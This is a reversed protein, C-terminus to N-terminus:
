PGITLTRSHLTAKGGKLTVEGSGAWTNDDLQIRLEEDCIIESNCRIVKFYGLQVMGMTPGTPPDFETSWSATFFREISMTFSSGPQITTGNYKVPTSKGSWRECREPGLASIITLPVELKNRIVILDKKSGRLEPCGASAYRNASQSASSDGNNTSPSSPVCGSLMLAVTISILATVIKRDFM